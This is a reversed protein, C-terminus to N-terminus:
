KLQPAILVEPFFCPNDAECIRSEETSRDSDGFDTTARSDAAATSCSSARLSALKWAELRCKSPRIDGSERSTDPSHADALSATPSLRPVSQISGMSLLGLSSSREPSRATRRRMPSRPEPGASGLWHQRDGLQTCRIQTRIHGVAHALRLTTLTEDFSSLAPSATALLFTRACQLSESLLLTLKSNRFPVIMGPTPHALAQIVSTLHFLSKNIHGLEVLSQGRCQTTRENERGALDVICLRTGVDNVVQFIAHGRSSVANMGTHTVNRRRCALNVLRIAASADKVVVESLNSVSVGSQPHCRIDLGHRESTDHVLLDHLRDMHIEMCSLRCSRAVAVHCDKPELLHRLAWPLLGPSEANGILTYTKGTGTQGIAFLCTHHGEALSRM